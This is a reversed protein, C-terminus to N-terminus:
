ENSHLLHSLFSMNSSPTLHCTKIEIYHFKSVATTPVKAKRGILLAEPPGQWEEGLGQWSKGDLVWSRLASIHGWAM